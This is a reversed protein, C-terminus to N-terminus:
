CISGSVERLILNSGLFEMEIRFEEIDLALDIHVNKCLNEGVKETDVLLEFYRKESCTRTLYCHNSASRKGNQVWVPFM